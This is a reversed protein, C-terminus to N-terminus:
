KTLFSLVALLLLFVLSVNLVDGSSRETSSTTTQASGGVPQGCIYAWSPRAQADFYRPGCYGSPVENAIGICSGPSCISDQCKTISGQNNTCSILYYSTASFEPFRQCKTANNEVTVNVFVGGGCAGGQYGLFLIQNPLILDLISPDSEEEVKFNCTVCSGVIPGGIGNACSCQGGVFYPITLNDCCYRNSVIYACNSSQNCAGTPPSWALDTSYCLLPLSLLFFSLMM